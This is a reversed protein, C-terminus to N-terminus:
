IQTIYVMWSAIAVLRFSTLGRRIGWHPRGLVDTKIFVKRVRGREV